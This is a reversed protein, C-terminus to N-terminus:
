PSQCHHIYVQAPKKLLSWASSSWRAVAHGAAALRGSKVGAAGADKGSVGAAAGSKKRAQQQQASMRAAVADEIPIMPARGGYVEPLVQM